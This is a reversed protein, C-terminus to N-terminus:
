EGGRAYRSNDEIRIMGMGLSCKIGIGSYEGFDLLMRIFRKMTDQGNMKITINGIFGPIKIGEMHFKVTKLDYGVIKTKDTIDDLTDEDYMNEDNSSASYKNMLSKFILYKDPYFIYEGNSKFATPTIFRIKIYNDKVEKHYFDELLESKNKISLQRSIIKVKMEDHRIVFENFEEDLLKMIINKYATKNLTNIIWVYKGDIVKLASTFPNLGSTHIEEVYEPELHEMIIGHLLSGKNINLRGDYEPELILELRALM